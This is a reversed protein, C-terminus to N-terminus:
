RTRTSIWEALFECLESKGACHRMAGSKECVGFGAGYAAGNVVCADTDNAAIQTNAKAIADERMGVLEYKWGVIFARPFLRRLERILKPAPQLILRLEEQKSPIKASELVNGDAACVTKVKFDCLAAVHFFAGIEERKEINELRRLLDENTKFPIRHAKELQRETTAGTGKFCLVDCGAASLRNSLLM